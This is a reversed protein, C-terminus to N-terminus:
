FRAGKNELGTFVSQVVGAVGRYSGFHEHDAGPRGTQKLDKLESQKADFSVHEVRQTLGAAL